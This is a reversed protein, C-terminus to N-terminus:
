VGRTSSGREGSARAHDMPSSPTILQKVVVRIVVVVIQILQEGFRAGHPVPPGLM